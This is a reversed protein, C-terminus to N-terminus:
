VPRAAQTLWVFRSRYRDEDYQQGRAHEQQPQTLEM